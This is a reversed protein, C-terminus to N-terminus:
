VVLPNNGSYVRVGPYTTAWFKFIANHGESLWAEAESSDVRQLSFHLRYRRVAAAADRSLGQTDNVSIAFVQGPVSDFLRKRWRSDQSLDLVGSELWRKHIKKLLRHNRKTM